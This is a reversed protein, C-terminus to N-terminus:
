WQVDPYLSPQRFARYSNGAHTTLRWVVTHASDPTVEFIDSFAPPTAGATFNGELNGNALQEANGGWYSYEGPRYDNVITATKASEDVELQVVRSFNCPPNGHTDCTVTDPFVRLNGNDMVSLTFKGTSNPSDIAPGHQAFFWDDPDRGNVLTFDGQYGLKWIIDGAGAGNAYDIKIIWGQHRISFLLNGDDQSYVLANAHTWDPYGQLARNIDLHDFTSWYWVLSFTGDTNPALDVIVDGIIDPLGSCNPIASCPQKVQVMHIWHGNPLAIVDHNFNQTHYPLGAAAFSADMQASTEQRITNNALDVERLITPYLCLLFHGNPLLHAGQVRLGDQPPYAWLLNGALDVAMLPSATTAGILNLIEIGPQPTTGPTTTVTVDPLIEAPVAQTTFTHDLDNITSGDSLQLVARMHYETSALMGAVYFSLAGTDPTPLTWTKLLYSTDLGFQIFVTSGTPPTLTYQAVQPNATPAVTGPALVTITSTATKTPDSQSSATVTIPTNATVAPATFLGNADVSGGAMGGVSWAVDSAGESDTATLQVTQTSFVVASGPALSLQVPPPPPTEAPQSSGCGSVLLILAFCLWQALTARPM